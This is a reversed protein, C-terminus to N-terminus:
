ADRAARALKERFEGLLRVMDGRQANAGYAFYEGPGPEGHNFLILCYGVKEDPFMEALSAALADCYGKVLKELQERTRM